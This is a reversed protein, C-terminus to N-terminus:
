LTFLLLATTRYLTKLLKKAMSIFSSHRSQEGADSSNVGCAAVVGCLQPAGEGKEEIELHKQETQCQQRGGVLQPLSPDETFDGQKM